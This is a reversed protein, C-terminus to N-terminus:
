PTLERLRPLTAHSFDKDELLTCRLLSVPTWWPAGVRWLWWVFIDEVCASESGYLLPFNISGRVTCSNNVSLSTM